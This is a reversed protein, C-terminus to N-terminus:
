RRVGEFLYAGPRDRLLGVAFGITLCAGIMSSGGYSVFPLTMGKVPALNLNVAIHIAAQAAILAILGSAALQAFPDVLRSARSLGRWVLGGYLLILGVSAFLGFEEAAVAYIFDSHADPLARKVVGEGPGRGFLGGSAIADLARGVQYAPEGPDLFADVRARAHPALWYVVLGAIAAVMAGAALWRWSVGALLLLAAFVLGILAAQGVDPQILLVLAATAVLALAIWHGPFSERKMRESLMWAVVVVLAPKLFESPQISAIGLDIWRSAGKVEPAIVGAAAALALAVVMLVLSVRRVGVPSLSAAAFFALVGAGAFLAHRLAFYFSDALDIRATAGPSAAMVFVLGLAILAGAILVLAEDLSRVFEGYVARAGALSM